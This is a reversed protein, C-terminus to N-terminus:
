RGGARSTEDEIGTQKNRAARVTTSGFNYRLTLNAYRSDNDINLSYNVNEYKVSVREKSTYFIDNVTFSLTMKNKLLTQRLGVSFNGRPQMVYHAIRATSQYWGTVEASLTPTITINNNLQIYLMGGKNVFEGSVENSTSVAYGGQVTMNAMWIKVIQRRYNAMGYYQKSKGFNTQVLGTRNTAVDEVPTLMIMDVTHSYGIRTMLSQAFTHSLQLNHTYAPTLNPNGKTYSYADITVEFPNLHYYSPRSLRRSYSLGFTYKQSPQYNVFFTPFLNFYSTDNVEGTTKQEGKSSTYEGRLGGQLNFKGLRQSVNIYAASIQETYVFRNSKGPDEQWVNGIVEAYKLDNDTITQSFKAGTELRADKWLPQQTYDIKASYVDIAQPNTNSFQEASGIMVGESAFYRNANEQFSYSNFRAYDMDLNLQQGAKKAFTSQYNMNVQIGNRGTTQLNDATSYKVGNYDPTIDTRGILSSTENPSHYANVIVGFINNSNIFYDMGARMSNRIQTKVNVGNAHNALTIEGAPIQLVNVQNINQWFNNRNVSYNGYVNFKERRWNMNVGPTHHKYSTLYYQM